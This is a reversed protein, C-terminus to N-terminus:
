SNDVSLSIKPGLMFVMINRGNCLAPRNIATVPGPDSILHPQVQFNSKNLNAMFHIWPFRTSIFTCDQLFQLEQFSLFHMKINVISTTEISNKEETLARWAAESPRVCTILSSLCRRPRRCPLLFSLFAISKARAKKHM